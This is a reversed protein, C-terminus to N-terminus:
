KLYKQEMIIFFSFIIDDKNKIIKNFYNKNCPLIYHYYMQNKKKYRNSKDKKYKLQNPIM